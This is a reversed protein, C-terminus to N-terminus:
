QSFAKSIGRRQSVHGALMEPEAKGLGTFVTVHNIPLSSGSPDAWEPINDKVHTWDRLAYRDWKGFRGWLDDLIEIETESLHDLSARYVGDAVVVEHGIRAAIFRSWTEDDLNGNILNLTISVVPGDPLSSLKDYFMPEDYCSMHEREALYLLKSLKLVNIRGGSKLAFYAAVQAATAVDYGDILM